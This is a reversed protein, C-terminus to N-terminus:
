ILSMLPVKTSPLLAASKYDGGKQQIDFPVDLPKYKGQNPSAPDQSVNLWYEKLRLDSYGLWNLVNFIAKYSGIYSTINSHELIFEKRKENLLQVDPLDENIDSDRFIFEEEANIKQVLNDLITAFREDEPIVEGRLLLTVLLAPNDEDSYDYM